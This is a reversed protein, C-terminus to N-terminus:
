FGMKLKSVGTEFFGLAMKEYIIYVKFVTFYCNEIHFVPECLVQEIKDSKSQNHRWKLNDGEGMNANGGGGMHFISFPSHIKIIRKGNEV